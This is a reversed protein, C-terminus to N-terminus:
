CSKLASRVLLRADRIDKNPGPLFHAHVLFGRGWLGSNHALLEIGAGLM